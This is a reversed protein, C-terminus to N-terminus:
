KAGFRRRYEASLIFSRVMESKIYDGGFSNLKGLWFNYGNLNGDPADDPNRRLYGFYQMLVFARNFEKATFAANEAVKRLVTARTQTGAQLGAVLTDRESPTLANGTNQNLQDVFQVATLSDPYATKFASRNVFAGVFTQKNQELKQEYGTQGVIVGSGIAQTDPLFENLKPFRNLSAKYLKYVLFGTQQFEVSVFYAASVNQRKVDICRADAGCSFIENTWFQLGSIDPQRNLFDRYHQSVFFSASDIDNVTLQYNDFVAQGPNTAPTATGASIETQMANIPKQIAARFRETYTVNEPATEFVIAGNPYDNTVTQDNRFRWFRHAVPDYPIAVTKTNAGQKFQFVLFVSTTDFPTADALEVRSENLLAAITPNSSNGAVFRYFNDQGSGIAFITQAGNAAIQVVELSVAGNTLDFSNSSVYGNYHAGAANSVPTIVLQNNQQTVTINPDFSGAPQTLTGLQWRLPDRSNGSFADSPSPTPVPNPPVSATFNATQNVSLNTFTQNGPSFILSQDVPTIVYNGSPLGAFSYNGNADTRASQAQAGSLTVLINKLANGAGDKVQGSVTYLSTSSNCKGASGANYISQIETKSLARNYITAEDIVGPFNSSPFAAGISGIYLDGNQFSTGYAINGTAAAGAGIENGDVYLRVRSNDYTGVIHHFNGDWVSRGADPSLTFSRTSTSVYFFLGGSSGTYFAYSSSFTSTLSKSVLYQFTDTGSAKVWAEVTVSNQPRLAAADPAIVSGSTTQFGQGVKAATYALAGGATGNNANGSVDNTNGEGPYWAVIGSPVAACQRFASATNLALIFGLMFMSIAARISHKMQKNFNMTKVEKEVDNFVTLAM